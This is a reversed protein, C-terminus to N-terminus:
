MFDKRQMGFANSAYDRNGSAKLGAHSTDINSPGWSIKLSDRMREKEAATYASTYFLIIEFSADPLRPWMVGGPRSMTLDGSATNVLYQVARKEVGGSYLMLDVRALYGKKALKEVDHAYDRAKAETLAGSSQAIMVIDATFRRVVAEVDANTYTYSTSTTATAAYSM